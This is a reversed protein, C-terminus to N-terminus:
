HTEANMTATNRETETRRGGRAIGPSLGIWGGVWLLTPVTTVASLLGLTWTMTAWGARAKVFGGWIPGLLCGGAFSINFLAYAQAYAGQKGFIGPRKREKEEVCYSIEAMLPPFGVVNAVGLLFLLMCLLIKQGVADHTVFRLCVLLPCALIFAATSLYRPGYKDCYSGIIPATFSPLVVPLFLLGAGISNWHFIQRVQLALTAEFATLLISQVICGWLGALLRRSRLLTLIPPVKSEFPSSGVEGQSNVEIDVSPSRSPLPKSPSATHIQNQQYATVSSAEWARGIGGDTALTFTNEIRPSQAWMVAKKKEILALRLVVDLGVLGFCM